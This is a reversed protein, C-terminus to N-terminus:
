AFEMLAEPRSPFTRSSLVGHHYHATLARLPPMDPDIAPGTMPEGAGHYDGMVWGGSREILRHLEAHDLLSGALVIRPGDGADGGDRLAAHLAADYAGEEMWQSAGLAALAQEGRLGSPRARRKAVLQRMADRRDNARAVAGPLRADIDTGGLRELSAKFEVMRDFNYEASSYWPTHLLDFMLVDPLTALKVRKLESLYYYFRQVSDSTRPLVILDLFDYGGALIQQFVSRVAPDFLDEMYEDALPTPMGPVGSLQLPFFGAARVLEVPVTNGMYGAVKGGGAKWARAAANRDAYVAAFHAFGESPDTLTTM